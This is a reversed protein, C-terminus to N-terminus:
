LMGLCFLKRGGKKFPPATSPAYGEEGDCRRFVRGEANRKTLKKKAGREALSFAALSNFLRSPIRNSPYKKCFTGRLSGWFVKFSKEKVWISASLTKQCRM